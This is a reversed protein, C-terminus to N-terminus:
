QLQRNNEQLVQLLRVRLFRAQNKIAGPAGAAETARRSHDM